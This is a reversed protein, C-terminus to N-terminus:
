RRRVAEITTRMQDLHFRDHGALLRYITESSEPGRESHLGTRQRQEPTAGQWAGITLPRMAGVAELLPEAVADVYGASSVWRDQDFGTLKVNDEYLTRRLRVGVVMEVDFMHGLLEIVSWEGDAPRTRLDDGASAVVLRAEAPMEGMRASPDGPGALEFMLDRYREAESLELESM